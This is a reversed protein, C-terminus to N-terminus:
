SAWSCVGPACTEMGVRSQLCVSLSVTRSAKACLRMHKVADSPVQHGSAVLTSFAVLQQLHFSTVTIGPVGFPERLPAVPCRGIAEAVRRALDTQTSKLEQQCVSLSTARRVMVV